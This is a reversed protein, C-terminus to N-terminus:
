KFILQEIQKLPISANDIILQMDLSDILSRARNGPHYATQHDRYLNRLKVKGKRGVLTDPIDCSIFDCIGKLDLLMIDEIDAAAAIHLVTAKKLERELIEWDGEHFKSIDDTYKDTDYCLFVHWPMKRSYKSICQSNFWKGARPLQTITNVTHFKVLLQKGSIAIVYIVDPTADNVVRNIQADYKKCLFNLLSLYFEKETDGEVIFAFGADYANAM